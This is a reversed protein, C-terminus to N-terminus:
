NKLAELKKNIEEEISKLEGEKEKASQRMANSKSIFTVKGTLKAKEALDSASKFLAEINSKMREKQVKLDNLEDLVAARKQGRRQEVKKRKEEDLYTQHMQRASSASALLEKSLSVKTVGGVNILHDTIVRQSILTQEAM